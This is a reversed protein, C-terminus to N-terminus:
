LEDAPRPNIRPRLRQVRRRQLAALHATPDRCLPLALVSIVDSRTIGIDRLMRDDHSLLRNVERRRQLGRLLARARRSLVFVMADKDRREAGFVRERACNREAGAGPATSGPEDAAGVRRKRGFGMEASQDPIPAAALASNEDPTSPKERSM